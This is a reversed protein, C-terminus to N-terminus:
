QEQKRTAQWTPRSGSPKVDDGYGPYVVVALHEDAPVLTPALVLISCFAMRLGTM